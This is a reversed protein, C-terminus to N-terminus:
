KAESESGFRWSENFLGAMAVDPLEKAGVRLIAYDGYQPTPFDGAWDEWLATLGSNLVVYRKPSLPNPYIMAPLVEGAAFRQGGMTVTERGWTFPLKGAVKEMMRNSGPDGFLVIHYNELDAATVDKDDKMRLHGRYALQYQRDFRALIALAQEHAAVNWPVGTPKVILFPELFADDIPGQLRHRKRLGAPEIRTTPQWKGASKAFVLEPAGTVTMQQGDIVVTAARETERLTLRNLNKTKIEYRSRNGLRKAEIEAREYHKELGDLTAWHSRNYRTTYTLFRLHDPSVRGRKLNELHMADMRKRFEPDTAHPTNPAVLFVISPVEKVRLGTTFSEGELHFGERMLQQRAAVHKSFTGDIEGVYGIFPMNFANLMWEYTNDFIRCMAQQHPALDTVLRMRHSENDGAGAEVSAWEGPFHLASHWVGAGGMSFGRLAVRDKDVKYAKSVAAIGEFIDTEGPWHFANNGRGFLEIQITGPLHPRDPGRKAFASIFEVEYRTVYRGHEIVDLPLPRLGDYEEPVTLRYPQVSGDVVSRYGRILRGKQSTWPSEGKRLLTARDMGMELVSLTSAVSEPRFFEEPFTLIWRAAEAFIEVDVLIQDSVGRARLGSIEADLAAMKTQIHQKEAATPSYPETRPRFRTTPLIEGARGQKPSPVQVTQSLVLSTCLFCLSIVTAKM